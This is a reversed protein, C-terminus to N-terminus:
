KSFRYKLRFFPNALLFLIYFRYRNNILRILFRHYTQNFDHGLFHTIPYSKIDSIEKVILKVENFRITSKIMRMMALFVFSQQKTKIQEITNPNTERTKLDNIINNFYIAANKFDRTLKLYHAPEKSTMASGPAIRYNHAMLNYHAIRKAKLFLHLMFIADEMWQGELFKLNTAVLFERKIFFWWVASSHAMSAIYDEGSIIKSLTASEKTKSSSNSPGSKITKFTTSNFTMVDLNNTEIVNVLQSLVNTTLFDDPDLFYIYEGKAKELGYNRASGVGANKQVYLHVNFYNKCYSKAIDESKDESGDNVLIIEYDEQNLDQDILSDICQSIYKEVNYIPLIISLRM